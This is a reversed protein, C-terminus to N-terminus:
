PIQYNLPWLYVLLFTWLINTQSDGKKVGRKVGKQAFKFHCIEAKSHSVSCFLRMLRVPALWYHPTPCPKFVSNGITKLVIWLLQIKAIMHLPWILQTDAESHSVSGYLWMLRVTIPRNPSPLCPKLWEHRGNEPFNVIVTGKAILNILIDFKSASRKNQM